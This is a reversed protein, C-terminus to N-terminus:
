RIIRRSVLLDARSYAEPDSGLAALFDSRELAQLMSNELAVVTATRPVDRLLAIEGFCDGPGMQTLVTDGRVADLRGSEILYFREGREGEVIVMHGATVKVPILKRALDEQLAPQLPQFLALAQILDLHPPPAFTRDLRRLRPLSAAAALAVPAGIIVLAWSLGVLELFLPFLLAGLGMAGFLASELAGFVRGLVAAPAVRQVVTAFNVDVLPNGFGILLFALFATVPSPWIAVLLPPLGWGIVGVCFDQAITGRSARGLAVLGGCLAGIGLVANLYGVGPDGLQVVDLAITVTYVVSAGAVVTQACALVTLLLLSRDAGIVRFGATVEALLRQQEEAAAQEEPQPEDPPVVLRGIMLASWVFSAANIVFLVPVGTVTLLVGALAPGIFFALSELTSSMANAATLEQPSHALRPLLAAQAPRFPGGIFGVIVALTIVVLPPGDLWILVAAVLVLGARLLDTTILFAKKPVRDVLASLFPVGLAILLLRVVAYGGVYAPGGNEYLWVAIATNYAWDGIMSGALALNIRRLNPNAAVLRASAVTERVPGSIVSM